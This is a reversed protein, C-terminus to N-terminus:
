QCTAAHKRLWAHFAAEGLWSDHGMDPYTPKAPDLVYGVTPYDIWRLRDSPPRMGAWVITRPKARSGPRTPTWVQGKALIPQAARKAQTVARKGPHPGDLGHGM